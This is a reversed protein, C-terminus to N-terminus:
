EEQKHLSNECIQLPRRLLLSKYEREEKVLNEAEHAQVRDRSAAHEYWKERRRHGEGM